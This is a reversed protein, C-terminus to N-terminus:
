GEKKEKLGERIRMCFNIDKKIESVIFDVTKVSYSFIVNKYIKNQFCYDPNEKLNFYKVIEIFNASTFKIHIDNKQLKNTIDQIIRKVTFPHTNNPNQVEKIITTKGNIAESPNVHEVKLTNGNGKKTIRYDHQITIAFRNNNTTETLEALSKETKILKNIIKPSYKSKLVDDTPPSTTVALNIFHVPIQEEIDIRHFQFLFEIYNFVSAQFLPVYFFEYEQTIFHTSINRLENIKELNKRLPDKDNTFIKKICNELSITRSDSDKYYIANEGSDKIIKAKLMLEWANCIFFAFGEVRYKLTPKNYLEIAMVFAEQSKTLLQESIEKELENM